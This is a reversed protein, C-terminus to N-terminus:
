EGGSERGEWRYSKPTQVIKLVEEISVRPIDDGQGEEVVSLLLADM